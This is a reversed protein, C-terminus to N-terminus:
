GYEARQKSRKRCLFRFLCGLMKGCENTFPFAHHVDCEQAELDCARYYEDNKIQNSQGFRDV